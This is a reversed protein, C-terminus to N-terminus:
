SVAFGKQRPLMIIDVAIYKSQNAFTQWIQPGSISLKKLRGALEEVRNKSFMMFRSKPDAERMLMIWDVLKEWACTVMQRNINVNKTGQKLEM